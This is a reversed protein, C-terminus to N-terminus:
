FPSPCKRAGKVFPARCRCIGAQTRTRCVRTPVVSMKAIAVRVLAPTTRARVQDVHFVCARTVTQGCRTIPRGHQDTDWELDALMYWISAKKNDVIFEFFEDYYPDLDAPRINSRTMMPVDAM